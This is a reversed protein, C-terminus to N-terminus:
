KRDTFHFQSQVILFTLSSYTHTSPFNCSKNLTALHRIFHYINFGTNCLVSLHKLQKQKRVKCKKSSVKKAYIYGTSQCVLVCVCVYM